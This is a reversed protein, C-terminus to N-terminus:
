RASLSHCQLQVLSWVSAYVVLHLKRAVGLSAENSWQTSYLPIRGEARLAHAWALTVRTALGQGRYREATEVGAEAATASGRACFCISIARQGELIGLVPSRGNKIEGTKWGHFETSLAEENEIRIVGEDAPPLRSPFAMAPGSKELPPPAILSRLHKGIIERYTIAHIPLNHFETIPTESQALCDLDRILDQPLDAHVAWAAERTNRVLCFLPTWPSIAERTSVIHGSEDTEFSAELYTRPTSM